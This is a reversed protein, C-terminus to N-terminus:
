PIAALEQSATPKELACLLASQVNQALLREAGSTSDKSSTRRAARGRATLMYCRSMTNKAEDSDSAGRSDMKAPSCSMSSSRKRFRQEDKIIELAAEEGQGTNQTSRTVKRKRPKLAPRRRLHAEDTSSCYASMAISGSHRLQLNSRRPRRGQRERDFGEGGTAALSPRARYFAGARHRESSRHRSKARPLATSSAGEARASIGIGHDCVRLPFREDIQNRSKLV